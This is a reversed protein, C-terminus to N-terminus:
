ERKYKLYFMKIIHKFGTPSFKYFMLYYYCFKITLKFYVNAKNRIYYDMFNRLQSFYIERKDRYLESKLNIRRIIANLASITMYFKYRKKREDNGISVSDPNDIRYFYLPKDVFFMKGVEELKYYLDNDEAVQFFSDIGSTKYYYTKLFSVFPGIGRKSNILIDEDINIKGVNNEITLDSDISNFRYGTSYILSCQPKEFHLNVMTMLADPALKDDSDLFGCIEGKSLEVCKRKTFGCGLNRGNYFIRIRNDSIYKQYCGITDETSGDDVLIIEWNTYSQDLVSNIAEEIYQGNNYNAVLVSFLPTNNREKM